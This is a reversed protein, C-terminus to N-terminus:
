PIEVWFYKGYKCGEIEVSIEKVESTKANFLFYKSKSQESCDQKNPRVLMWVGDPSLLNYSEPPNSPNVIRFEDPIKTIVTGDSSYIWYAQDPFSLVLWKDESLQRSYIASVDVNSNPKSLSIERTVGTALDTLDMSNYNGMSSTIVYEGNPSVTMFNTFKTQTGDLKTWYHATISRSFQGATGESWFIGNNFAPEIDVVGVSSKTIQTLDSGDPHILFGQRKGNVKVLGIWNSDGLWVADEVNEQLLTIQEPYAFDIIFLDGTLGISKKYKLLLAKRGDPSVDLPEYGDLEMDITHSVLNYLRIKQECMNNRDCKNVNVEFLILGNKGGVPTPTATPTSTPSPTLTPTLTPTDTPPVPSLTQTPALTSEPTVQTGCSTMVFTFLLLLTLSTRINM